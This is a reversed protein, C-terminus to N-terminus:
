FWSVQKALTISWASTDAEDLSVQLSIKGLLQGYKIIASFQEQHERPVHNIFVKFKEYNVYDYKSMM